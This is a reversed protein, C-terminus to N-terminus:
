PSNELVNKKIFFDNEKPDVCSDQALKGSKLRSFLCPRPSFQAQYSWFVGVQVRPVNSGRARTSWREVGSEHVSWARASRRRGWKSYLFGGGGVVGERFRIRQRSGEARESM